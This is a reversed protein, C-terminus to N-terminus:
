RHRATRGPPRTAPTRTTARDTGTAGRDSAAPHRGAPAPADTLATPFSSAVVDAATPTRPGMGGPAGPTPIRQALRHNLVQAPSKASGLEREGAVALLLQGPDAGAQHAQALAEALEPWAPDDLVARSTQEPLGATVLPAYRVQPPDQPDMSLGPHHAVADPTMLNAPALADPVPGGSRTDGTTPKATDVARRGTGDQDATAALTDTDTRRTTRATRWDAAKQAAALAATLYSSAHRAADGTVDEHQTHLEDM